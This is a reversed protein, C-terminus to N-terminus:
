NLFICSKRGQRFLSASEWVWGGEMDLFPCSSYPQKQTTQKQSNKEALNSRDTAWVQLLGIGGVESLKQLQDLQPPFRRLSLFDTPTTPDVRFLRAKCLCPPYPHWIVEGLIEWWAKQHLPPLCEALKSNLWSPDNTASQIFKRHCALKLFKPM